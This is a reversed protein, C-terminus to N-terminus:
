ESVVVAAVLEARRPAAESGESLTLSLPCVSLVAGEPLECFVCLPAVQVDAVVSALLM